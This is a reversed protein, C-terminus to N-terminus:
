RRWGGIETCTEPGGGMTARGEEQEEREEWGDGGREWREDSDVVGAPPGAGGGGGVEGGTAGHRSPEGRRRGPQPASLAPVRKALVCLLGDKRERGGCSSHARPATALDLRGRRRRTTATVSGDEGPGNVAGGGGRRPPDM